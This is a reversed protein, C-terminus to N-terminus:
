LARGMPGRSGTPAAGPNKRAAHISTPPPPQKPLDLTFVCGEGPIDRIHLEGAMMKMAKVCISLGLGLGSRDHGRQVFPRLLSDASGEPLGGCHDQVEILVRTPTGLARLAVHTGPRTFKFANQVLNGIAAALIARDVEVILDHDVQSVELHVGRSQAVISAGIEAEELLEWIPVRVLSLLGAELRVDALSRDILGQLRILSRDLMASTSGGTAVTGRKICDFSIMASNLANRLEHALIGLRETGEATIARERHGSFTTVAGATAEDLCLNLIQFEGPAIAAERDTALGTIVQCIDGYSNIVQAITIGQDYLHDGHLGGSEKLDKHDVVQHLTKKRLAEGLQDLFTPLGEGSFAPVLIPGLRQAVRARAQSLIEERHTVIFESLM